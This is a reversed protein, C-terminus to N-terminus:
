RWWDVDVGEGECQDDASRRRQDISGRRRQDIARGRCEDVSERGRQDDAVAGVTVRRRGGVTIEQAAGVSITENIGVSHTRQLAVTATESQSVTISRNGGINITENLDVTEGRNMHITITENKDVTETRQGHVTITENNDVTETRDHQVHNTEDHDVETWRDHGVWRVEDNEVANTYDKEARLYVLESGKKDEFMLENFNEPSGGLSSRSVIGSQTKNAPLEYPPMQEANYVRGTIIPQDPDGELFDVIVEQGIRPTSIAGWTKGAWPHSVRIWCSSNEDKKGLRDWHFQVKVRGYKDTYIEEGGPGVVVATQPGQVFPKPTVRKPRFQQATPMAVFACRYGTGGAEPLSEYDEFSLDSSASVILYERNQDERPHHELTVLAGVTLGRANTAARATEFQTGMEDIRVSAYQEGDPRQLYIGPYDYVEYNSPSYGRPLTKTTKLEVSPRELDYDDHVYAGPQIERGFDWAHVHELDPKVQQEPGVFSLKEYSPVPVHKSASDTLVLTNHGDTHRFYYGMGEQEMLRSVFNFDTERYQVCYTWKRYTGTLELKYDAAGHDAFVKKIIDPVTMEQFIRCDATRTLFWLWPRVTALYRHYRGDMGGASFRTVYGNFYRTKDDPLALTITVNKGLIDDLTIDHKSSLLDLQYEFPRSMEERASMGHFLLVDEGLPTAIEMVRPM